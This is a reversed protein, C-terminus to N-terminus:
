APREHPGASVAEGPADDGLKSGQGAALAQPKPPPNRNTFVKGCDCLFAWGFEGPSAIGRTHPCDRESDPQPKSM